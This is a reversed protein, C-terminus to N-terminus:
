RRYVTMPGQRAAEREIERKEEKVQVEKVERGSINARGGAVITLGAISEDKAILLEDVDGTALVNEVESGLIILTPSGM